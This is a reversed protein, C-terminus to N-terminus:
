AGAADTKDPRCELGRLERVYDNFEEASMGTEGEGRWIGQYEAFGTPEGVARKLAEVSEGKCSANDGKEVDM